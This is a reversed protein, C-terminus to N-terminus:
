QKNKNCRLRDARYKKEGSTIHASTADMNDVRECVIDGCETSYYVNKIKSKQMIKICRKCPRSNALTQTGTYHRFVVIDHVGSKDM